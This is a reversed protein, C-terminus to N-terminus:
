GWGGVGPGSRCHTAGDRVCVCVQMSSLFKTENGFDPSREHAAQEGEVAEEEEEPIPTEADPDRAMLRSMRQFVAILYTAVTVSSKANSNDDQLMFPYSHTHPSPPPNPIPPLPTPAICRPDIKLFLHTNPHCPPNICTQSPKSAAGKEVCARTSARRAEGLWASAHSAYCPM